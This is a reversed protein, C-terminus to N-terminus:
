RQVDKYREKAHASTQDAIVRLFIWV